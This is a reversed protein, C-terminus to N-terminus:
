TKIPAAGPGLGPPPSALIDEVIRAVTTAAGEAMLERAREPGFREIAMAGADPLHLVRVPAIMVNKKQHLEKQLELDEEAM